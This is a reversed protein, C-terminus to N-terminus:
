DRRPDTVSWNRGDGSRDGPGRGAPGRGADGSRGGAPPATATTEDRAAADRRIASSSPIGRRSPGPETAAGVPHTDAVGDFPSAVPPHAPLDARGPAATLMAATPSGSSFPYASRSIRVILSSSTARVSYRSVGVGPPLEPPEQVGHVVPLPDV